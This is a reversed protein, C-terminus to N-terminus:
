SIFINFILIFILHTVKKPKAGKESGMKFKVSSDM